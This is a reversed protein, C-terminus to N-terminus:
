VYPPLSKKLICHPRVRDNSWKRHTERISSRIDKEARDEKKTAVRSSKKKRNGSKGLSLVHM